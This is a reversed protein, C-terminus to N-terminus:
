RNAPYRRSPAPSSRPAPSQHGPRRRPPEPSFRREVRWSRCSRASWRGPFHIAPDHWFGGPQRHRGTGINQDSAGGGKVAPRLGIEGVDSGQALAARLYPSLVAAWLRCRSAPVRSRWEHRRPRHHCCSRRRRFGTGCACYRVGAGPPLAVGEACFSGKGSAGGISIKPKRCGVSGAMGHNFWSVPEITVQLLLSLLSGPALRRCLM